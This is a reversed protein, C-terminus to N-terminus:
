RDKQSLPVARVTDGDTVGLAEAAYPLLPFRDIRSPAHAVVVRFDAFRRNAVLWRVDKGESRLERELQIARRLVQGNFAGALGRDGTLPVILTSSTTERQQLLPM